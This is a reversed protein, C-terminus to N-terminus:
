PIEIFSHIFSSTGDAFLVFEANDNITKPLDNSYLLFLLPRLISGQPIGYKIEGWNSCSDPSNNDIIVRQYRDELYSKILKLSTETIGYFQKFLGYIFIYILVSV